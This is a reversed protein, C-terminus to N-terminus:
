EKPDQLIKSTFVFAAGFVIQPKRGEVGCVPMTVRITPADLVVGTEIKWAYRSDYRAIFGSDYGFIGSDYVFNLSQELGLWSRSEWSHSVGVQIFTGSWDRPKYTSYFIDAKARPAIKHHESIRIPYFGEGVADAYDGVPELSFQQTFDYYWASVDWYKGSWGVAWDIERGYNKRFNSDTSWAVDAWFNSPFTWFFDGQAVPEDFVLMGSTGVYRTKAGVTSDLSIETAESSGSFGMFIFIFLVAKFVRSV